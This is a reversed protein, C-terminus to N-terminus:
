YKKSLQMTNKNDGFVAFHFDDPRSLNIKELNIAIFYHTTLPSFYDWGEIAMLLLICLAFLGTKWPHKRSENRIVQLLRETWLPWHM